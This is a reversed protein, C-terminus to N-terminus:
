EWVNPKTTEPSHREEGVHGNRQGVNVCLVHHNCCPVHTLASQPGGGIMLYAVCTSVAVEMKYSFVNFSLLSKGTSTPSSLPETILSLTGLVPALAREEVVLNETIFM